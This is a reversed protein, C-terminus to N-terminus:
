RSACTGQLHFRVKVVPDVPLFGFRRIVPLSFERTDIPVEGDIAYTGAESHAISVPFALDRGVGHANEWRAPGAM